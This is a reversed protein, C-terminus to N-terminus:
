ILVTFFKVTARSKPVGGGGSRGIAGFRMCFPLGRKREPLGRRM